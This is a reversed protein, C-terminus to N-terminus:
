FINVIGVSIQSSVQSKQTNYMCTMYMCIRENTDTVSSLILHITTSKNFQRLSLEIIGSFIYLITLEGLTVFEWFTKHLYRCNKHLSLTPYTCAYQEIPIQRLALFSCISIM